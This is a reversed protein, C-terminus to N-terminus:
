GSRQANNVKQIPRYRRAFMDVSHDIWESKSQPSAEVPDFDEGNFQKIFRLWLSQWTGEEGNEDDEYDEYDSVFCLHTLVQEVIAAANLGRFNNSKAFVGNESIATNVVVAPLTSNFDMWWPLPRDESEQYDLLKVRRDPSSASGTVPVRDAEALILGSGDPDVIKVRFYLNPRGTLFELETDGLPYPTGVTGFEFRETVILHTAEVVVRANDEFEFDDLDLTLDFRWPAYQKFLQISVRDREISQRDTHNIQAM